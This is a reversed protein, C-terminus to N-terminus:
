KDKNDHKDIIRTKNNHKGKIMEKNDYKERMRDTNIIKNELWKIKNDSYIVVTIRKGIM